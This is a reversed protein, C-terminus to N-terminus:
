KIRGCAPGTVAGVQRAYDCLDLLCCQEHRPNQAKCIERGFKILAVHTSGRLGEPVKEMLIQRAKEHDAKEPVIGLRKTVRFVHTDVPIVDRDCSFLLVCDATKPGVGKITLLEKRAAEPDTECVFDLTGDYEDIVLRSINKILKAKQEHLGGIHIPDAIASEPASALQEPTNYVEYLSAFARLSNRDTTNQSLITMILVDFPKGRSEDYRGYRAILRRSIEATKPDVSPAM